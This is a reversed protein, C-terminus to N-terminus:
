NIFKIPISVKTRDWLILLDAVENRQDFQLTLPEYIADKLTQVPVEFRFLDLQANYNYSGWLGVETNVIITWKNKEPISFLSYTGAKMLINNILIDKTATIETAENAGLRWVQGYPVLKGFIERGRKQPQSYVIKIYGDKYRIAAVALPSQRVKLVEQGAATFTLFLTFCYLVAAKMPKLSLSKSADKFQRCLAAIFAALLLFNTWVGFDKARCPLDSLKAM